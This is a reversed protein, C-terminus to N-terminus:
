NAKQRLGRCGVIEKTTYCKYPAGTGYVDKRNRPIHNLALNSVLYITNPKPDPLGTVIANPNDGYVPIGDGIVGTVVSPNEVRCEIGSPEVKIGTTTDHIPHKTLNVYKIKSM